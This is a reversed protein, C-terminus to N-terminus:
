VVVPRARQNYLLRTRRQVEEPSLSATEASVLTELTGDPLADPLFARVSRHSLIVSLTDNWDRPEPRRERYRAALLSNPPPSVPSLDNM